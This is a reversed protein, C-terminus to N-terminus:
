CLKEFFAAIKHPIMLFFTIIKGFWPSILWFYALIGFIPLFFTYWRLRGYDALSCATILLFGAVGIFAVDELVVLWGPHKVWAKRFSRFFDFCVAVLGGTALLVVATM